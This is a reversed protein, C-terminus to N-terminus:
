GPHLNEILNNLSALYCSHRPNANSNRSTSGSTTPLEHFAKKKKNGARRQRQLHSTKIRGQNHENGMARGRGKWVSDPVSYFCRQPSFLAWKERKEM